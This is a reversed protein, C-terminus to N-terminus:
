RCGSDAGKTEVGSSSSADKEIYVAMSNGTFLGNSNICITADNTLYQTTLFGSLPHQSDGTIVGTSDTDIFTQIAGSFPSRVILMSFQLQSGDAKQLSAGWSIDYTEPAVPSLQIDYAQLATLDNSPLSSSNDYGVVDQTTLEKAGNTTIFEGLIVCDSQGTPLTSNDGYCKLNGSNDNSVNAVNSYQQQLFSQM